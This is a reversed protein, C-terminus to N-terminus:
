GQLQVSYIGRARTNPLMVYGFKVHTIKLAFSLKKFFFIKGDGGQVTNWERTFYTVTFLNGPSVDLFDIIIVQIVVIHAVLKTFFM